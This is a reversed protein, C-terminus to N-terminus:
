VAKKEQRYALIEGASVGVSRMTLTEGDVYTLWQTLPKNHLLAYLYQGAVAAMLDNILLHQTGALM